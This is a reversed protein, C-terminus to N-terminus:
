KEAQTGDSNTTSDIAIGTTMGIFIVSWMSMEPTITGSAIASSVAFLLSGISAVSGPLNAAGFWEWITVTTENKAYKKFYHSVMGLCSIVFFLIENFEM